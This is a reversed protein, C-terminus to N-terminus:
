HPSSQGWRSRDTRGTGGCTTCVAYLPLQDLGFEAAAKIDIENTPDSWGIMQAGSALCDLCLGHAAYFMEMSGLRGAAEEAICWAKMEQVSCGQEEETHWPILGDASRVKREESM